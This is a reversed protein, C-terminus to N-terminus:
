GARFSVPRVHRGVRVHGPLEPHRMPLWANRVAPRLFGTAPAWLSVAAAVIPATAVTVPAFWRDALLIEGDPMKVELDREVVVKGTQAPPLGTAKALVWNFLSM